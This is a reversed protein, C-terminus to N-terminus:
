SQNLELHREPCRLRDALVQDSYPWHDVQGVVHRLHKVLDADEEETHHHVIKCVVDWVWVHAVLYTPVEQVDEVEYDSHINADNQNENDLLHQLLLQSSVCQPFLLCFELNDSLVVCCNVLHHWVSSALFLLHM